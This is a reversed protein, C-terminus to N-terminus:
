KRGGENLTIAANILALHVLGQPLNGLFAGTAADIEEAYLGVDNSLEVLQTMTDTADDLRGARALADVLWFSCTLFTGERGELGDEGSYRDLLPGHQGLERRIADITAASRGSADDPFEMLPALLLAADLEDSDALRNYSRQRPSWGRTEVFERIADAEARWRRAHAAPLQGDDALRVARDLATWCMVKSHTFHGPESRVEWIGSDPERWIECVLDAVATLRAATDRDLSRGDRSYLWASQLLEGYIDLQLQESAANGVRVPQSRRYGALPLDHEAHSVRGDLGYLVQLRPHTLQSAHMLWWFFSRAEDHCGLRMLADITFSSDRVWSFRYDWNRDGGLAEPLSTTAAAAVAGSPAYLLLKLALASRVVEERWPGDYTRQAAWQRWFGVTAALRAEVAARPPIVLPEQHASALAILAPQGCRTEFRGTIADAECRAEGADWACVAIADAGASAVPVGLRTSMRTRAGAYGFRPELSWQMPVLGSLAEIHRALERAPALGDGTLTLADTVKVSGRETVFTTELVNTDPVYRRAVTFPIEPALRFAGGRRADILAGFVSPSDMDPLCLWDIAGDRAVLAATRGDGIVAYDRIPAHGDIRPAVPTAAGANTGTTM